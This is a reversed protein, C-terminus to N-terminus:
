SKVIFSDRIFLLHGRAFSPRGNTSMLQAKVRMKRNRPRKKINTKAAIILRKIM